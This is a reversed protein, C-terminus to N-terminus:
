SFLFLSSPFTKFLLKKVDKLTSLDTIPEVKSLPNGSANDMKYYWSVVFGPVHIVRCEIVGCCASGVTTLGEIYLLNRNGYALCGEVAVKFIVSMLIIEKGCAVHIHDFMLVGPAVNGELPSFM